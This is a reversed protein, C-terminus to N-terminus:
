ENIYVVDSEMPSWFELYKLGARGTGVVGHIDKPSLYVFNGPGVIHEKGNIHIKAEGELILYASERNVHYHLKKMELNPEYEYLVAMMKTAGLERDVLWRTKSVGVTEVTRAETLKFIKSM